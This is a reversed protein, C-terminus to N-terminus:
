QTTQSQPIPAAQERAATSALLANLLGRNYLPQTQAAPMAAQRAQALPSRTRLMENLINGQRAASANGVARAAMGAPLVMAPLPNGSGLAAIVGATSALNGLKKGVWRSTNGVPTGTVARELQSLEADNYGYAKSADNRLLPRLAQRTANNQNGGSYTSGAQIDANNLLTQQTEARKAAGWNARADQLISSAAKANGAILDPQKLNSLFDDIQNVAHRAATADPTFAGYTDREMAKNTLVNRVSNIDQVTAASGAQTAAATRPNTLEDVAKFPVPNAYDRFGKSELDSRINDALNSVAQPKIQVASVTPHNYQSRSADKLEEVTPAVAKSASSALRNAIANAGVGSAIGTAIRAYPEAATGKTLQGATESAVAPIAAQTILKRGIGGPGALAAPAFEGITQAYQGATTKPEYLPGTVGEVASQIGSTTPLQGSMGGRVKDAEATRAATQEPTYGLAQEAKNAAWDFGKNALGTLDGPLGMLGMTGKALGIGGSKAVDAAVSPSQDADSPLAFGASAPAAFSAPSPASDSPLVFDPSGGNAMHVPGGYARKKTGRLYDMVGDLNKIQEPTYANKNFEDPWQQFTYGRFYGPVGSASKWDEYPRQENENQQAYQYQDKLIDEQWPELSGQFNQYAQKVTPDVNILHHSAVDALVDIPRSDARYNEVGFQGPPFEQPRPFDPTGTETPSWSEMYGPGGGINNKYGIDYNNLVPYQERAQDLLSPHSAESSPQTQSEAQDPNDVGGGDAFTRKPQFRVCWGLRSIPSKVGDCSSPAIFHKCIACHATKRSFSVYHVAGHTRKETM